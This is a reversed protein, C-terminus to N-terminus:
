LIMVAIIRTSILTHVDLMMVVIFVLLHGWHFCSLVCDFFLLSAGNVSRLYKWRLYTRSCAMVCGQSRYLVFVYINAPVHSTVALCVQTRAQPWHWVVFKVKQSLRCPSVPRWQTISVASAQSAGICTCCQRSRLATMCVRFLASFHIFRCM